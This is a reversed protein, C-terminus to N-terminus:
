AAPLYQELFAFTQEWYAEGLVDKAMGHGAGAAVLMMKNDGPKADYVTQLMSFPVFDDQDGHIFLMPKTCNQLQEVASAESFFFGARLGSVISAAYLVPFEPLHFRLALESSFIDWVSTYGCDEVYAVVADPVEEGATMMVAAGGMSVGHMVIQAQADQALVWDIWNLMDLRDLWGMGVFQGMSRGCGRLDPTIVQYGADHYRQVFNVMSSGNGRYGHVVIAWRHSDDQAYYDAFLTLGDDSQVSIEEPQVSELFAKTLDAQLQKNEMRAEEQEQVAGEDVELAAQRNGGDGSRGIAYNVLYNGVGFLAALLLVALLGVAIWIKQRRQLKEQKM